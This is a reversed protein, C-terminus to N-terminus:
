KLNKNMWTLNENKHDVRYAFDNLAEPKIELLAPSGCCGCGEIMIGYKQSLASLEVLFERTQM